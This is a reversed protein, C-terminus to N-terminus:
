KFRTRNDRASNSFNDVERQCLSQTIIETKNLVYAVTCYLSYRGRDMSVGHRCLTRKETLLRIFAVLLCSFMWERWSRVDRSGHGRMRMRESATEIKEQLLFRNERRGCRSSSPSFLVVSVIAARAIGQIYSRRCNLTGNREMERRNDVPVSSGQDVSASVHTSSAVRHPRAPYCVLVRFVCLFSIVM